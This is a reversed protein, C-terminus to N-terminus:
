KNYNNILNTMCCIFLCVLSTCNSLCVTDTQSSALDTFDRSTTRQYSLCISPNQKISSSVGLLTKSASLQCVYRLYVFLHRGSLRTLGQEVNREFTVKDANSFKSLDVGGLDFTLRPLGFTEAPQATPPITVSGLQSDGVEFLESFVHKGMCSLYKDQAKSTSCTVIISVNACTGQFGISNFAAVGKHTTVINWGVPTTVLDGHIGGVVGATFIQQSNGSSGSFCSISLLVDTVSDGVIVGDLEDRLTIILDFPVNPQARPFHKIAPNSGETRNVKKFVDRPLTCYEGSCSGGEVAMHHIKQFHISSRFIPIDDKSDSHLGESTILFAQIGTVGSYEIPDIIVMGSTITFQHGAITQGGGLGWGGAGCKPIMSKECSSPVDLMCSRSIWPMMSGELNITSKDLTDCPVSLPRFVAKMVEGPLSPNIKNASGSCGPPMNPDMWSCGSMLICEEQIFTNNCPITISNDVSKIRLRFPHGWVWPVPERHNMLSIWMESNSPQLEVQLHSAKAICYLPGISTITKELGTVTFNWGFHQCPESQCLPDRTTQINIVFTVRGSVATATQEIIHTTTTSNLNVERIGHLSLTTVSDGLVRIGLSDIIDFQLKSSTGTVIAPDGFSTKLKNSIGSFNFVNMGIGKHKVITFDSIKQVSVALTQKLVTGSPLKLIDLVMCDELFVGSVKLKSGFPFVVPDLSGLQQPICAATSCTFCNPPDVTLQLGNINEPPIGIQLSGDSFSNDWGRLFLDVTQNQVVSLSATATDPAISPSVEWTWRSLTSSIVSIMATQPDALKFEVVDTSVKIQCRGNSTSGVTRISIPIRAVGNKFDTEYKLTVAASIPKSFVCGACLESCDIEVLVTGNLKYGTHFFTNDSEVAGPKKGIAYVSLVATDGQRLITDETLSFDIAYHTPVVEFSVRLSEGPFIGESSNSNHEDPNRKIHFIPIPSGDLLFELPMGFLPEGSLEIRVDGPLLPQNNFPVGNYITSGNKIHINPSGTRIVVNLLSGAIMVATANNFITERPQVISLKSAPIPNQNFKPRWALPTPGGAAFGRDGLTDSLYLSFSWGATQTGSTMLHNMDGKHSRTNPILLLSTADTLVTLTHIKGGMSFICVYCARSMQLRVTATGDTAFIPHPSTHILDGGGSNGETKSDLLLSVATNGEWSPFNNGDVRWASLSFPKARRVAVPPVGALLWQTSCTTVHHTIVNGPIWVGNVPSYHRQPFSSHVSESMGTGLIKYHVWVQCRSCPRTFFFTVTSAKKGLISGYRSAEKLEAEKIDCVGSMLGTSLFGGSGYKMQNAQLASNENKHAWRSSVSLEYSSESLPAPMAWEKFHQVVEFSMKFPDGVKIKGTSDPTPVVDSTVQVATPKSVEVTFPKTFKTREAFTPYENADGAVNAFCNSYSTASTYCLNVELICSECPATLEIWATAVGQQTKVTGSVAPPILMKSSPLVLVDDAVSSDRLQHVVLDGGDNCGTWKRKKVGMLSPTFSWAREGGPSIDVGDITSTMVITQIPFPIGAAVGDGYRWGLGPMPKYSVYNNVTCPFQRKSPCEGDYKVEDLIKWVTFPRLDPMTWKYSQSSNVNEVTQEPNNIDTVSITLFTPLLREQLGYVSFYGKMDANSLLNEAITASTPIANTVSLTENTIRTDSAHALTNSSQTGISNHFLSYRLPKHYVIYRTSDDKVTFYTMVELDIRSGSVSCDTTGPILNTSPITAKFIATHMTAAPSPLVWLQLDVCPNSDRWGRSSDVTGTQSHASCISITAGKVPPRKDASNVFEISIVGKGGVASIGNDMPRVLKVTPSGFSYIHTTGVASDDKGTYKLENEDPSRLKTLETTCPASKSSCSWLVTAQGAPLKATFNRDTKDLIPVGSFSEQYVWATISIGGSAVSYWNRCGEAHKCMPTAGDVNIVKLFRLPLQELGRNLLVSLSCKRALTQKPVAGAIGADYVITLAHFTLTLQTQDAAPRNGEFYLKSFVAKNESSGMSTIRAAIISTKNVQESSRLVPDSFISDGNRVDSLTDIFVWWTPWPVTAGALNTARVTASFTSSVTLGSPMVVGTGQAQSNLECQMDVVDDTLTLRIRGSQESTFSEPGAGWTSHFTFQCNHCPKTTRIVWRAGWSNDIKGPTYKWISCENMLASNNSIVISSHVSASYTLCTANSGSTIDGRALRVGDRNQIGDSPHPSDIMVYIDGFHFEDDVWRMGSSTTVLTAPIVTVAIGATVTSATTLSGQVGEVRLTQAMVRVPTRVSMRLVTGGKTFSFDLLCGLQANFRSCGFSNKVRFWHRFTTGSGMNGPDKNILENSAYTPSTLLNVDSFRNQTTNSSVATGSLTGRWVELVSNESQGYVTASLKWGSLPLSSSAHVPISCPSTLTAREACVEYSIEYPVLAEIYSGELAVAAATPKTEEGFWIPVPIREGHGVVDLDLPVIDVVRVTKPIRRQILIVVRTWSRETIPISYEDLGFSVNLFVYASDMSSLLSPTVTYSYTGGLSWQKAKLESFSGSALEQSISKPVGLYSGYDLNSFLVSLTGNAAFEAPGLYRAQFMMSCPENHYCTKTYFENNPDASSMAEAPEIGPQVEKEDISISDPWHDEVNVWLPKSYVPNNQGVPLATFRIGCGFANATGTNCSSKYQLKFPVSGSNLFQKLGTKGWGYRQGNAKSCAGGVNAVIFENSVEADTPDTCALDPWGTPTPCKQVWVAYSGFPVSGHSTAATVVVSVTSGSRLVPTYSVMSSVTETILGPLTFEYLARTSEPDYTMFRLSENFQLRPTVDLSTIEVGDSYYGSALKRNYVQYVVGSKAVWGNDPIGDGPLGFNTPEGAKYLCIKYRGSDTKIAPPLSFPSDGSTSWSNWIKSTANGIRILSHWGLPPRSSVMPSPRGCTMVDPVISVLDTFYGGSVGATGVQNNSYCPVGTGSTQNVSCWSSQSTTSVGDTSSSIRLDFLTVNSAVGNNIDSPSVSFEFFSPQTHLYYSGSGGDKLWIWPKSPSFRFCMIYKGTDLPVQFTVRLGSNHPVASPCEGPQAPNTGPVCPSINSTSDVEPSNTCSAGRVDEWVWGTGNNNFPPFRTAPVAALVLKFDGGVPYDSSPTGSYTSINFGWGGTSDDTLPTDTNHNNVFSTSVGGLLVSGRNQAGGLVSDSILVLNPRLSSEAHWYAVIGQTTFFGSLQKSPGIGGTLPKFIFVQDESILRGQQVEVWTIMQENNIIFSTKVCVKYAAATDSSGPPQPLTVIIEATDAPGDAPGLDSIGNAGMNKLVGEVAIHNSNGHDIVEDFPFSASHCAQKTEIIKASDAGANTNFVELNNHHNCGSKGPTCKAFRVTSEGLNTPENGSTVFWRIGNDRVIFPSSKWWSLSDAASKRIQLCLVVPDDTGDKELHPIIIRIELHRKSKGVRYATTTSALPQAETSAPPLLCNNNGSHSAVVLKAFISLSPDLDAKSTSSVIDTSFQLEFKQLSGALLIGGLQPYTVVVDAPPEVKYTDNFVVWADSFTQKYCLKYQNSEGVVPLTVAAALSTHDIYSVDYPLIDDFVDPTCQALALLGETFSSAAVPCEQGHCLADRAPKLFGCPQTLDGLGSTSISGSGARPCYLSLFTDATQREHHWRNPSIDCTSTEHVIRFIDGSGYRDLPAANLQGSQTATIIFLADMGSRKEVYSLSLTSEPPNDIQMFNDASPVWDQRQYFNQAAPLQEWNWSKFRFCIRYGSSQDVSIKNPITVYFAISTAQEINSSSGLCNFSDNTAGITNCQLQGGDTSEYYEYSTPSECPYEARVVRIACGVTDAVTDTLSYNRVYNWKRQDLMSTTSQNSLEIIIPSWVGERTDNAYWTVAPPRNLKGYRWPILLFGMANDPPYHKSLHRWKNPLISDITSSGHWIAVRFGANPTSSKRYCVVWLTQADPIYVTSYAAPQSHENHQTTTSNTPDATLDASGVPMAPPPSNDIFGGHSLSTLPVDLSRDWCGTNPFSGLDYKKNDFPTERSVTVESMSSYKVLRFMDGGGTVSWYNTKYSSLEGAVPIPFSSTTPSPTLQTFGYVTTAAASKTNLVSGSSDSFRITGWTNPSLDNSSWGVTETSITFKRESNLLIDGNAATVSRQSCLKKSTCRYLKRWVPISTITSNGLITENKMRIREELGTFCVEYSSGVSDPLKVYAYSHKSPFAAEHQNNVGQSLEMNSYKYHGPETWDDTLPNSYQTGFRAVGGATAGELLGITASHQWIGNDQVHSSGYYSGKFTQHESTCPVGEPVIKLNDGMSCSRMSTYDTSQSKGCASSSYRFGWNVDVSLLEIIAYQRASSEPLYYWTKSPLSTMSYTGSELSFLQWSGGASDVSRYRQSQTHKYCILFPVDSSPASFTFFASGVYRNGLEREVDSVGFQNASLLPTSSTAYADCDSSHTSSWRYLAAQVEGLESINFFKLENIDDFTIQIRFRFEQGETLENIDPVIVATYNNFFQLTQSISHSESFSLTASRSDTLSATSSHSYSVSATPLSLSKTESTTVTESGTSTPLSFTVTSTETPLSASVTDTPFSLTETLTITKTAGESGWCTFCLLLCIVQQRRNM